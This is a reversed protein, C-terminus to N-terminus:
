TLWRIAGQHCYASDVSVGVVGETFPLWGADGFGCLRETCVHSFDPVTDGVELM